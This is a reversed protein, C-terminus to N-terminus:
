AAHQALEVPLAVTVRDYPVHTCTIHATLSTLTCTRTNNDIATVLWRAGNHTVITNRTPAM